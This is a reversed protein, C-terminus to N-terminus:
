LRYVTQIELRCGGGDEINSVHMGKEVMVTSIQAIQDDEKLGEVLTLM